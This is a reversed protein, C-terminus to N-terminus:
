ALSFQDADMWLPFKERYRQMRDWDTRAQLVVEQHAAGVRVEGLPDILASDGRYGKENGDMGVRNVAALFVQNEIARAELLKRWHSSRVAPWNAVYILFDYAWGSENARNRAFVPFRLDYCVLPCIRWGKWEFIHKDVGATYVEHEGAMRFLHRKDYRMLEGEPGMVLLRNYFAGAEEIVLSGVVVAATQRAVEKMWAVSPGDMQEAVRAPTMTFGTTFMEPLIILDGPSNLSALMEEAKSRNLAPQEWALDM